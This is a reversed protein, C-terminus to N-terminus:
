KIVTATSAIPDVRVRDGTRIRQTGNVTGVIAPFHLERAMIAAHSAYSGHDTVIAGVLHLMANFSEMTAATVLVEGEVLDFLDDFEIIVRALGEYSEAGVGIGVIVNDDGAPEPLQGIVGEIGFGLAAM